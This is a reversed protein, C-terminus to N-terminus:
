YTVPHHLRKLAHKLIFPALVTALVVVTIVDSYMYKYKLAGKANDKAAHTTSVDGFSFQVDSATATASQGYVVRYTGAAVTGGSQLEFDAKTGDASISSQDVKFDYSTTGSVSVLKVVDDSEWKVTLGDAGISTRTQPKSTASLKFGEGSQGSNGGEKQCGVMLAALCLASVIYKIKM